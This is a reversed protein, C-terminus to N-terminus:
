TLLQTQQGSSAFPVPAFFFKTRLVASCQHCQTCQAPVSSPVQRWLSRHTGGEGPAATSSKSSSRALRRAFLARAGRASVVIPSVNRREFGHLLRVAAAHADPEDKLEERLNNLFAQAFIVDREDRQLVM